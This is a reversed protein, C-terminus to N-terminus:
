TQAPPPNDGETPEDNILDELSLGYNQYQKAVSVVFRLNCMVLKEKAEEDGNRIKRALTVEEEPTLLQFRGIEQLYKEISYSERGTIQKNIKLQRM